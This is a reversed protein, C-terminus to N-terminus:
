DSVQVLRADKWIAFDNVGTSGAEVRLIFYVRQGAYDSLNIDWTEFQGPITMQKGPLFNTTDSLDKMGFKFTVGDSGVANPSLGVTAIFHTKAPVQIAAIQNTRTETNTYFYGWYGQTWGQPVQEPIMELSGDGQKIYGGKPNSESGFDPVDGASNKWSALHALPLLNYNWLPGFLKILCNNSTNAEAIPDKANACVKVEHNLTLVVYGNGSQSPGQPAFSGTTDEAMISGGGSAAANTGCGVWQYSSFALTREQGPKMVDVFSTSGLPPFLNDVSLLSTSGPANVSGINKVKYYVMCGDLWADTIILDPVGAVPAGVTITLHKAPAGADNIATLVYESTASPTITRTGSSPVTGIEPQITVRTANSVDWKLTVTQGAPVTDPTTTFSNITPWGAQVSLNQVTFPLSSQDQGNASINVQYNGQPFGGPPAKMAFYMYQTGQGTQTSTFMISNALSAVEGSLYTLKAMVQTNAAANNLKLSLYITDTSVTFTNSPNLPKSQSDVGTALTAESMLSTAGNGGTNVTVCGPMAIALSAVTLLIAIILNGPGLKKM